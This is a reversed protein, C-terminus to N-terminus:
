NPKQVQSPTVSSGDLSDANSGQVVAVQEQFEQYIAAIQSPHADSLAKIKSSAERALAKIKPDKPMVLSIFYTQIQRFVASQHQM